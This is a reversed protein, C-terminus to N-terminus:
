VSFDQGTTHLHTITSWPIEIRVEGLYILGRNTATLVGEDRPRYGDVELYVITGDPDTRLPAVDDM